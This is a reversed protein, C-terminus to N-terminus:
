TTGVARRRQCASLGVFTVIILTSPSPVASAIRLGVYADPTALEASYAFSIREWFQPSPFGAAPGFARREDTEPNAANGIEETWEFAGGSTDWLGWPSVQDTYAGLPIQWLDPLTIGPAEAGASTTGIGPLGPIGQTERMNRYTWWGAQGPGNRNPDFHAAKIWEDLSPIWFTAGPLRPPYLYQPSNIPPILRTDYAGTVLSQPDSSKGNHLWNCYLMAM